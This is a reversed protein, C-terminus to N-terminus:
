AIQSHTAAPLIVLGGPEIRVRFEDWDEPVADPPLITDLQDDIRIQCGGPWRTIVQAPWVRNSAALQPSHPLPQFRPSRPLTSTNM